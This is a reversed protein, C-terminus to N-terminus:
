SPTAFVPLIGGRNLMGFMIQVAVLRVLKVVFNGTCPVTNCSGASVHERNLIM